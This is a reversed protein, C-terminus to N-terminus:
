TRERPKAAPLSVFFRAGQGVESELRVTGGHKEVLVQVVTLGIGEGENERPRLRHYLQFVREHHNAAIGLGNDAVCYVVDSGRAKGTVTIRPPRDPSRYKLANDLLNAFVQNLAPADGRCPPLQEVVVTAASDRIVFGLASIVEAMLVNMDQPAIELPARGLRSVKLLAGLLRDMHTAGAEIYGLAESLDHELLKELKQRGDATLPETLLLAKLDELGSGLERTFGQVNVLPSRLDHSTVYVIQELEHIKQALEREIQKRLTVEKGQVITAIAEGSPAHLNASSWLVTQISGDVHQVPIEVADWREGMTASAILAMAEDRKDEPLLIGVTQGVVDEQRRGTLREFAANFRTVRYQPDWVAVPASGYDLLKELYDRAAVLEAEDHKRQTIDQGQAITAVVTVGDPGYVAASSWLLTHVSGDVHRIPIEIADWHEGAAAARIREMELDREAGSLLAGVPEGMMSAESRGVLREFAHNFRTIRFGPGWVVIPAKACDLLNNLYDKAAVLDALTERQASQLGCLSRYLGAQRHRYAFGTSVAALAVFLLVLLVIMGARFRVEALMESADVKAVMFWPSGPVPRLDSLVATGRYDNGAFTGEKGLVAQVAPVDTRTLAIRLVLPANAGFRLDNLFLVENGDRRVLLTEASRTPTPWSQILPYLFRQLSSRLALFALTQGQDNGIPAIADAYILGDPRRYFDSLVAGHRALAAGMARRTAQDVPNADDKALMLVTGDPALFLANSYVSGRLELRLSARLDARLSPAWPEALLRVLAARLLPGDAARSADNLCDNRWTAIQNAKLKGVAALEEYKRARVRATEARYYYGGGALLVLAILAFGTVWLRPPQTPPVAQETM